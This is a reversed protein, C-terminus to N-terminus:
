RILIEKPLIKLYPIDLSMPTTGMMALGVFAVGDMTADKWPKPQFGTEALQEDAKPVESLPNSLSPIPKRYVGRGKGEVYDPLGASSLHDPAKYLLTQPNSPGVDHHPTESM